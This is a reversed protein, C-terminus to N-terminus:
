RRGTLVVMIKEFAISTQNEGSGMGFAERTPSTGSAMVLSPSGSECVSFQVGSVSLRLLGVHCGVTSTSSMPRPKNVHQLVSHQKSSNMFPEASTFVSRASCRAIETSDVNLARDSNTRPCTGIMLGSLPCPEISAPPRRTQLLNKQRANPTELLVISDALLFGREGMTAVLHALAGRRAWRATFQRRNSYFMYPLLFSHRTHRRFRTGRM